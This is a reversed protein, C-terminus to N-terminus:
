PLIKVNIDFFATRDEDFAALPRCGLPRAPLPEPKSAPALGCKTVPYTVLQTENDTIEM